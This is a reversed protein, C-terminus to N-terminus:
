GTRATLGRTDASHEALRAARESREVGHSVSFPSPRGDGHKRVFHSIYDAAVDAEERRACLYYDQKYPRDWQSPFFLEQEQGESLFLVDAAQSWLGGGTHFGGDRLLAQETAQEAELLAHGAICCRFGEPTAGDQLVADANRAFAWQAACFRHPQATITHRVTELLDVNM